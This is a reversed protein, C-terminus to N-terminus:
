RDKQQPHPLVQELTSTVQQWYPATEAVLHHYAHEIFHTKSNPFCRELESINYKWDVTTDDTGQIITIASPLQETHIAVTHVWQNMAGLWKLPVRRAQLPDQKELFYNFNTNHSSSKFHRKISPLCLKLVHYLWQLTPWATIRVLPALLVSHNLPNHPHKFLYNAIVACGTSQGTLCIPHSSAQGALAANVIHELVTTYEDFHDIAAPQGSSLGHGPLDFCLVRYNHDLAWHILQGYLGTHDLYGHCIILTGIPTKPKWCQQVIWYNDIHSKWIHHQEALRHKKFDIDYYYLYNDLLEQANGALPKQEDIPLREIFHQNQIHFLPTSTQNKM